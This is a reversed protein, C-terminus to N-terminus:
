VRLVKTRRRPVGQSTDEFGQGKGLFDRAYSRGSGVFPLGKGYGQVRAESRM